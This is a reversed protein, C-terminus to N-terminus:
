SGDNQNDIIAEFLVCGKGESDVQSFMNETILNEALEAKHGYIYQVEYM